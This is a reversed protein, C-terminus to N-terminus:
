KNFIRNLAIDEDSVLDCDKAGDVDQIFRHRKGRTTNYEEWLTEGIIFYHSHREDKPLNKLAKRSKYRKVKNTIYIILLSGLVIATSIKLAVEDINSPYM